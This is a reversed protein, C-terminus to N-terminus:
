ATKSLSKKPWGNMSHFFFEITSFSWCILLSNRVPFSHQRELSDIFQISARCRMNLIRWNCSVVAKYSQISSFGLWFGPHKNWKQRQDKLIMGTVFVIGKHGQKPPNPWQKKPQIQQPQCPVLPGLFELDELSLPPFHLHFLNPSMKPRWFTTIRCCNIHNLFHIYVYRMMQYSKCPKIFIGPPKKRSSIAWIKCCRPHVRYIIPYVVLRLQNAPNWGDVTNVLCYIVM